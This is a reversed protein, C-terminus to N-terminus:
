LALRGHARRFRRASFRTRRLVGSSSPACGASPRRTRARTWAARRICSPCRSVEQSSAKQAGGAVLSLAIIAGAVVFAIWLPIGLIVYLVIWAVAAILVAFPLGVKM